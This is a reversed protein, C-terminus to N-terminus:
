KELQERQKKIKEQRELEKEEAESLECGNALNLYFTRIALSFYLDFLTSIVVMIALLIITWKMENSALFNNDNDTTTFVQTGKYLLILIVLIALSLAFLIITTVARVMYQMKRRKLNNKAQCMLLFALSRPFSVLVIALIPIILLLTTFSSSLGEDNSLMQLYVVFAIFGALAIVDTFGILVAAKQYRFCCCCKSFRNMGEEDDEESNHAHDAPKLDTTTSESQYHDKDKSHKESKDPNPKKIPPNDLAM